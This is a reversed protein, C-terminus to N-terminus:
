DLCAVKDPERERCAVGDHNTARAASREVERLLNVVRWSDGVGLELELEVQEAQSVERVEVELREEARLKSLHVRSQFVSFVGSTDESGGLGRRTDSVLM